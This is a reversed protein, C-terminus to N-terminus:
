FSPCSTLSLVRPDMARNDSHQHQLQRM